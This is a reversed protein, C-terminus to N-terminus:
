AAKKEAREAVYQRQAEIKAAEIEMMMHRAQTRLFAKSQQLTSARDENNDAYAQKIAARTERIEESLAKYRAKWDARYAIYSARDNFTFANM